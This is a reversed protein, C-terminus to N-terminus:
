LLTYIKLVAMLQAKQQYRIPQKVGFRENDIMKKFYSFIVLFGWSQGEFQGLFILLNALIGSKVNKAFVPRVQCNTFTKALEGM